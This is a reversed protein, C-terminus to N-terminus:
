LFSAEGAQLTLNARQLGDSRTGVRMQASAEGSVDAYFGDKINKYNTVKMRKRPPHVDDDSDADTSCYRRRASEARKRNPGATDRTAEPELDVPLNLYEYRDTSRVADLYLTLAPREKTSSKKTCLVIGRLCTGERMNSREALFKLIDHNNYLYYCKSVDYQAKLRWMSRVLESTSRTFWRSTKGDSFGLNAWSDDPGYGIEVRTSELPGVEPPMSRSLYVSAPIDNPSIAINPGSSKAVSGLSTGSLLGLLLLARREACRHVDSM